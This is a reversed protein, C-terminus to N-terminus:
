SRHLTLRHIKPNWFFNWCLVNILKCMNFETWNKKMADPLLIRISNEVNVTSPRRQYCITLLHRSSSTSQNNVYLEDLTNNLGILILNQLKFTRPFTSNCLTIVILAFEDTLLVLYVLPEEEDAIFAVNTYHNKTQVSWQKNTCLRKDYM